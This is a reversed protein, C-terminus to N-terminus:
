VALKGIDNSTAHHWMEIRHGRLDRRLGTADSWHLDRMWCWELIRMGAGIMGTQSVGTCTWCWELIRMGARIM